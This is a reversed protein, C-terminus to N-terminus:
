NLYKGYYLRNYLKQNTGPQTHWYSITKEQAGKINDFSQNIMQNTTEDQLMDKLTVVVNQSKLIETIDSAPNVIISGFGITGFISMKEEPILHGLLHKQTNEGGCLLEMKRILNDDIVDNHKQLIGHKVFM